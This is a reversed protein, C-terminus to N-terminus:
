LVQAGPDAGKVASHFARLLTVYEGVDPEPKWFYRSNAENWLQWTAIPLKPIDPNDRWFSGNSGYREVAARVFDRFKPLATGLPPYEPTPEAWVPSSYVTALVRIGNRAAAGIVSDYHDWDYDADPGSQVTGWAMNLRMTGLKAGGLRDIESD